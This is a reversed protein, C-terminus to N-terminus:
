VSPAIVVLPSKCAKARLLPLTRSPSVVGGLRDAACLLGGGGGGGMCACNCSIRSSIVFRVMVTVCCVALM